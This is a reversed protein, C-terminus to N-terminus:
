NVYQNNQPNFNTNMGPQPYQNNNQVPMNVGNMPGVSPQSFVVKRLLFSWQISAIMIPIKIGFLIATYVALVVYGQAHPDAGVLAIIWLIGITLYLILEFFVFILRIIAYAKHLGTNYRGSNCFLILAILVIVLFLINTILIILDGGFLCLIGFVLDWINIFKYFSQQTFNYYCCCM